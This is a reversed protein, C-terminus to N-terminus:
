RSSWKLIFHTKKSCDNPYIQDVYEEFSYETDNIYWSRDGNSYEIAPGDTRHKKGNQLWLRTGNAREIAPGDTRHHQNNQYWYRDGNAWEVAPGDTRHLEGNQYWRRAGDEDIELGNKM